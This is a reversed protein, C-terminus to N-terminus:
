SKSSARKTKPTIQTQSAAPKKPTALLKKVGRVLHDTEHASKQILLDAGTTEETLGLHALFGSLLIIPNAFQRERLEAILAVGDMAPMRYDTVIVDFHHEKALELAEQGSSASVVQYGLEELINRRAILGHANDDVLLIIAPKTARLSPALRM